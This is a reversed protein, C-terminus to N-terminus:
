SGPDPSVSQLETTAVFFNVIAAQAYQLEYKYILHIEIM